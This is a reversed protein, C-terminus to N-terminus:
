SCDNLSLRFDVFPVGTTAVVTAAADAVISVKDDAITADADDTAADTVVPGSGDEIIVVLEDDVIVFGGDNDAVGQLELILLVLKIFSKEFEFIAVSARAVSAFIELPFAVGCRNFLGAFSESEEGVVFRIFPTINEGITTFINSCPDSARLKFHLALYFHAVM